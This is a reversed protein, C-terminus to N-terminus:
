PRELILPYDEYLLFPFVCEHRLILKSLRSVRQRHVRCAKIEHGLWFACYNRNRLLTPLTRIVRPFVDQNILKGLSNRCSM